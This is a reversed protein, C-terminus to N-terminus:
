HAYSSQRLLSVDIIKIKFLGHSVHCNKICKRQRQLENAKAKKKKLYKQAREAAVLMEKLPIEEYNSTDTLDRVHSM